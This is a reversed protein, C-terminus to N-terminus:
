VPGVMPMDCSSYAARQMLSLTGSACPRWSPAVHQGLFNRTVRDNTSGMSVTDHDARWPESVVQLYGRLAHCLECTDGHACTQPIVGRSRMPV